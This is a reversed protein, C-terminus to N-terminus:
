AASALTLVMRAPAIADRYRVLNTDEETGTFFPRSRFALFMSLGVVAGMLLGFVAFLGIKTWFLTTFVHGAHVSDYWLHDTYFATFRNILVILLVLAAVSILLIRTRGSGRPALEVSEEDYHESM